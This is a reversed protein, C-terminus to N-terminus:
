KKQRKNKKNEPIVKRKSNNDYTLLRYKSIALASAIEIETESLDRENFISDPIAPILKLKEYKKTYRAFDRCNLFDLTVFFGKGVNEVRSALKRDFTLLDQDCFLTKIDSKVQVTLFNDCDDYEIRTKAILKLLLEFNPQPSLQWASLLL